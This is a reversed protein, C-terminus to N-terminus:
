KDFKVEIRKGGAIEVTVSRKLPSTAIVKGKGKETKIEHGIKPLGKRLEKYTQNQQM